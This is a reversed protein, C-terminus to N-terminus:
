AGIFAPRGSLVGALAGSYVLDRAPSTAPMALYTWHTAPDPNCPSACPQQTAPPTPVLGVSINGATDTVVSQVTGYCQVDALAEGSTVASLAAVVIAIFLLVRMM